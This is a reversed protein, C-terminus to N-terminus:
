SIFFIQEKFIVHTILHTIIKEKLSKYSSTNTYKTSTKENLQIQSM